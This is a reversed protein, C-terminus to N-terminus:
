ELMNNCKLFASVSSRSCCSARNTCFENRCGTCFQRVQRGSAFGNFAHRNAALIHRERLLWIWDPKLMRKRIGFTLLLLCLKRDRRNFNHGHQAEMEPQM